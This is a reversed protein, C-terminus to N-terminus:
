GGALTMGHPLRVRRGTFAICNIDINPEEHEDGWESMLDEQNILKVCVVNASVRCKLEVDLRDRGTTKRGEVAGQQPGHFLAEAADEALEEEESGPSSDGPFTAIPPNGPPPKQQQAQVAASEEKTYFHFWVLPRLNCSLESCADFEIWEGARTSKIAIIQPLDGAESAFLVSERDALNDLATCYSSSAM